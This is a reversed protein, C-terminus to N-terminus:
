QFLCGTNQEMLSESMAKQELQNRTEPTVRKANGSRVSRAADYRLFNELTPPILMSITVSKIM